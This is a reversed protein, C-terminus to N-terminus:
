RRAAMGFLDLQVPAGPQPEPAPASTHWWRFAAYWQRGYHADDYEGGHARFADLSIEWVQGTTRETAVIRTAGADRALRLVDLRFSLGGRFVERGADFTRQLAGGRVAALHRGGAYILDGKLYAALGGDPANPEQRSGGATTSDPYCFAGGASGKGARGTAARRAESKHIM